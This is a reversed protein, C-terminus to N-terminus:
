EPDPDVPPAPAGVLMDDINIANLEASDAEDDGFIDTTRHWLRRRIADRIERPVDDEGPAMVWTSYLFRGIAFPPSPAACGVILTRWGDADVEDKLVHVKYKSLQALVSNLKM